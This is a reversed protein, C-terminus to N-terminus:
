EGGSERRWVYRCYRNYEGFGLRRYIGLGARAARLVVVPTGLAGAGRLAAVTMATGVGQGRAGPVTGLHYIGAAETHFYLQSAGVPQSDMSGLYLRWPTDEGFPTTGYVDFLVSVVQDPFGFSLAVVEVWSRLGVADAVQEVVLDPPTRLDQAPATLHLAMGVEDELRTLGAGELHSGLDAPTSSPGVLWSLPSGRSECEALIEEIRHDVEEAGWRAWFVRNLYPHAISSAAWLVDGQDHLSLLPSRAVFERARHLINAEIADTLQQASFHIVIHGTWIEPRGPSV